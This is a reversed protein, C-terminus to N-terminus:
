AAPVHDDPQPETANMQRLADMHLPMEAVAGTIATRALDIQRGVKDPDLADTLPDYGSPWGNQGLMVAVWSNLTFLDNDGKLYRGRRLFLDMRQALTEPVSMERCYRWFETDDRQTLKYHLIIFDRVAEFSARMQRNYEDRETPAFDKDPMLALLMSIGHQILHISTSELPEVFGAALGLAVVNRNWALRRRGTAFRLPRAAGLAAGELNALLIAEARDDDLFASAYVHGNGTRHQLPIRWQWGAERATSRTFPHPAGHNESPVAIARDCPLWHSWDEFGTSLQQEILLGRFGSCDIFLDGGIRTGDALLISEVFGTQPNLAVDVVRGERRVVGRREAFSRLFLAYRTADFHYAYAIDHTPQSPDARPHTFRGALAAQAGISFSDIPPLPRRQRERLYLQHFDIGAIDRGFRGFPHIYRDGPRGWDVFEIGLKFTGSTARLFEAEGIGLLHNFKQIPPITAEGVGITGIEDSEVLVVETGGPVIFRGLAAGAMWGATGGGVIVIRDLRLGTM